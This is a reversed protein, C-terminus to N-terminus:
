PNTRVIKNHDKIEDKIEQARKLVTSLPARPLEEVARNWAERDIALDIDDWAIM